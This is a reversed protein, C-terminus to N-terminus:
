NQELLVVWSSVKLLVKLAASQLEMSGATMEVVSQGMKEVTMQDMKEVTLEVWDFAMLSGLSAAKRVAKWKGM